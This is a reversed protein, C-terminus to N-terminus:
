ILVVSTEAERKIISLSDTPPTKTGIQNVEQKVDLAVTGHEGIRPTVTLVVGADRYEVSQTGVVATTTGGTPVAGGIPLQQSTVIPVSESVNIVAKKNESTLIHPNSVINVRNQAALTNLMAFFKGTQFTFATLGASVPGFAGAPPLISSPSTLSGGGATPAAGFGFKGSRVAWDIGLSLDDKLTIEAVLVEILVQRPMRDLQKITGEIEEWLRPYTTVIVANTVEDAIFKVQGEAVGAEGIGPVGVAPPAGPVTPPPPPTSLDPSRRPPSSPSIEPPPPDNFFFLFLAHPTQNSSLM